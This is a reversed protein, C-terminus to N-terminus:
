VARASNSVFGSSSSGSAELRMRADAEHKLVEPWSVAPLLKLSHIFRALVAPVDAPVQGKDTAHRLM